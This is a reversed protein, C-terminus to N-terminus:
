NSSGNQFSEYSASPASRKCPQIDFESVEVAISRTIAEISLVVRYEQKRRTLVGEMGTLPGTVIRVWDGLVLYPHPEARLQGTAVRLMEMDADAIATPHRSSAAFGLVGPLRLIGPRDFESARAFLYCPFLPLEVKAHVGNKWTHLCCHVPLFTELSQAAIRLAVQKEHRSRTQLAYWQRSGENAVTSENITETM